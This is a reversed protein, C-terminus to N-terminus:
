TPCIVARMGEPWRDLKMAGQERKVVCCLALFDEFDAGRLLCHLQSNLEAAGEEDLWHRPSSGVADEEPQVPM